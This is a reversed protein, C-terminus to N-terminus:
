LREKYPTKIVGESSHCLQFQYLAKVKKNDTLGQLLQTMNKGKIPHILQPAIEVLPEMVFRRRHLEPHPVALNESRIIENGFLLLDLDITRPGWRHTRIRGLQNEIEQM